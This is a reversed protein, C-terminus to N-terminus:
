SCGARPQVRYPCFVTHETGICKEDFTMKSSFTVIDKMMEM